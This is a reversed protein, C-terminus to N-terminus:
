LRTAVGIKFGFNYMKEIHNYANKYTSFLQYRLQPGVILTVGNATKISLITELSTNVNVKRLLAKEAIYNQNDASLVYSSGGLVYTPQVTAGLQWSFNDNGLLKINAGVPVAVQWTTKNLRDSGVKTAYTSTRLNSQAFNNTALTTPTTHGLNVVMSVYNTYNAQAGISVQINKSVNYYLAGGLELNLAAMDKLANNIPANNKQRAMRYGYSPTLYYRLTSNQKFKSLTSKPLGITSTNNKAEEKITNIVESTKTSIHTTANSTNEENAIITQLSIQPAEDNAKITNEAVNQLQKNESVIEVQRAKTINIAIAGEIDSLNPQTVKSFNDASIFSYKQETLENNLENQLYNKIKNRIAATSQAINHTPVAITSSLATLTPQTTSQQITSNYKSITNSTASSQYDAINKTETPSINLPSQVAGKSDLGIAQASTSALAQKSVTSKETITNSAHKVVQNNIANNNSIGVLMICSTILLCIVMSPWRRAPHMQNYIGYWIKREPMMKFDEVSDRLFQEFNYKDTPQNM